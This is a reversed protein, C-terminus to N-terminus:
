GSIDIWSKWHFLFGIIEAVAVTIVCTLPLSLAPGFLDACKVDVKAWPDSSAPNGGDTVPCKPSFAEIEFHLMHLARSLNPFLIFPRSFRITVASSKRTRTSSGGRLPLLLCHTDDTHLPLIDLLARPFRTLTSDLIFNNLHDIENLLFWWSIFQTGKLPSTITLWHGRFSM